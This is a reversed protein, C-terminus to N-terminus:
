IREKVYIGIERPSKLRPGLADFLRRLDDRSFIKINIRMVPQQPDRSYISLQQYSGRGKSITEIRARDIEDLAMSRTGTLSRYSLINGALTLRFRSLWFVLCATGAAALYLSQWYSSRVAAVVGIIAIPLVCVSILM